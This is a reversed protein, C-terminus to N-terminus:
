VNAADFVFRAFRSPVHFDPPTVRGTPALALFETSRGRAIRYANGRREEGPAPPRGSSLSTWPVVLRCTWTTWGKPGPPNPGGEVEILIGSRPAGDSIRWTERSEDPNRIRATYLCGRPNVVLEDYEFSHEAAALFLEVCEDRFVQEGERREITLPPESASEFLVVFYEATAAFRARTVASRAPSGDLGGLPWSRQDEVERISAVRAVPVVPVTM